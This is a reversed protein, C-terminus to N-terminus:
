LFEVWNIAGVATANATLGTVCLYAEEYNGDIFSGLRRANDLSPSLSEEGRMYESYIRVGGSHVLNAAAGLTHGAFGTMNTFAIPSWTPTGVTTGGYYLEVLLDDATGSLISLARIDIPVRRDAQRIGLVAYRTGTTLTPTATSDTNFTREAGVRAIAGEVAVDSCIHNFTGAAGQSVIEYRVPQNPSKVFTNVDVNIHQYTAILTLGYETLIWFNVVAGGLYLFDIVYFNFDTPDYSGTKDQNLWSSQALDFVDTGARTVKCRITTGDNEFYMGDLTATYPSVTSSSYYGMRKTVNAEVDFRSATLEIKLPKGAFYPHWQYSQRIAADGASATTTLTTGGTVSGEYTALGGAIEETNFLGGANDLHQKYDGVSIQNSIRLRGDASKQNLYNLDSVTQRIFTM